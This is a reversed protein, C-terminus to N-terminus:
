PLSLADDTFLLAFSNQLQELIEAAQLIDVQAAALEIALPIGDVKCCIDIVAQANDETLAFSAFALAARDVFLRVAEYNNLQEPSAEAQAPISLSPMQYIAEGTVNLVERSTALIRLNPCNAFLTVVLRVCAELLHECNDLILLAIKQRLVNTLIELAPRGHRERLDLISAITQPLLDPDSLSDLPIFWIGDPYENMVRRGVQLSLRTKGIGGTGILTVLRHKGLLDAVQDM